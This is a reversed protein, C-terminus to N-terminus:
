IEVYSREEGQARWYGGFPIYRNNLCGLIHYFCHSNGYAWKNEFKSCVEYIYIYQVPYSPFVSDKSSIFINRGTEAM